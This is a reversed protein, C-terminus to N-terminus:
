NLAPPIFFEAPIGNKTKIKSMEPRHQIISIAAKGFEQPSASRVFPLIQPSHETSGCEITPQIGPRHTAHLVINPTKRNAGNGRRHRSGYVEDPPPFEVLRSTCRRHVRDQPRLVGGYSRQVRLATPMRMFPAESYVPVVMSNATM